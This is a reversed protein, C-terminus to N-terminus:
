KTDTIKKMLNKDPPKTIAILYVIAVTIGLAFGVLAIFGTELREDLWQGALGPLVMILGAVVIRAVWQMAAAMPPVHPPNPM